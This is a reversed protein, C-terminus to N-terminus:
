AFKVQHTVQLTDGSIVNIASFSQSALMNGGSTNNDFLGEETIAYSNAFTWTKIWQETDGTTTTTTNTITGAGRKGDTASIESGLATTTPTGIGIAVATVPATTTGGVQQASIQKGVATVTNLKIAVPSWYGFLVPVKLDKHFYKKALKWLFNVHFLKKAKGDKGTLTIITKGQMKAESHFLKNM